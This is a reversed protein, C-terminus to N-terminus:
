WAHTERRVPDSGVHDIDDVSLDVVSSMWDKRHNGTSECSHVDDVAFLCDVRDVFAQRESTSGGKRCHFSFGGASRVDVLSSLFLDFSHCELRTSCM